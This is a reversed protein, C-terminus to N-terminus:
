SEFEDAMIALLCFFNFKHWQPFVLLQHASMSWDCIKQKSQAMAWPILGWNEILWRNYALFPMFLFASVVVGVVGIPSRTSEPSEAGLAALTGALLSDVRVTLFGLRSRGSTGLRTLCLVEVSMSRAWFLTSQLCTM